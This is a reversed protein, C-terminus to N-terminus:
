HRRPMLVFQVRGFDPQCDPTILAPDGSNAAMLVLTDDFLEVLGAMDVLYKPLYGQTIADGQVDMPLAIGLSKISDAGTATLKGQEIDIVAAVENKTLKHVRTAAAKLDKCAMTVRDSCPKPIVRTHDPFTGDVAKTWLQWGNGGLTAGNDYVHLAVAGAPLGLMLKVAAASMIVPAGSFPKDTVCHALRHGDTAAASFTPADEPGEAMLNVGRLYYRTEEDSMCGATAKFIQSFEEATLDVYRVAGIPNSLKPMDEVPLTELVADLDGAQVTLAGNDQTITVLSGANAGSLLKLMDHVPLLFPEPNDASPLDLALEQELDTVSLQGFSVEAFGLVPINCRTPVVKKAAKLADLLPKLESTFM